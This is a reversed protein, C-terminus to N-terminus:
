SRAGAAVVATVLDALTAAITGGSDIVFTEVQLNLAMEPEGAQRLDSRLGFCRKGLAAAYGLEVVTGSDPEQGDLWAVLLESSRIAQANRRGAELMMARLRGAERAADIEEASTIAWPDVPEVVTALTPLLVDYYYQRGAEYFGLPSAVYCRLRESPAV